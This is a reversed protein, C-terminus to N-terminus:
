DALRAWTVQKGGVSRGDSRRYVRRWHSSKCLAAGEATHEYQVTIRAASVSVVEGVNRVESRDCDAVRAGIHVNALLM